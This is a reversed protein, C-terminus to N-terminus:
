GLHQCSPLSTRTVILLVPRANNATVCPLTTILLEWDVAIEKQIGWYDESKWLEELNIHFRLRNTYAKCAIRHWKDLGRYMGVLYGELGGQLAQLPEKFPM